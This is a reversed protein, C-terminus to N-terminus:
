AFMANSIMWPGAVSDGEVTFRFIVVRQLFNPNSSNRKKYTMSFISIKRILAFTFPRLYSDVYTANLAMCSVSYFYNPKTYEFSLIICIDGRLTNEWAVAVVVYVCKTTPKIITTARHVWELANVKARMRNSSHVKCPLCRPRRSLLAGHLGHM